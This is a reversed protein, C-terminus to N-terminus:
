SPDFYGIMTLAITDSGAGVDYEIAIADDKGLILAGHTSYEVFEDAQVAITYLVSSEVLNAVAGNGLVTADATNGSTINLNVPTITTGTAATADTVVSIKFITLIASTL